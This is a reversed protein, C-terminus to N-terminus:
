RDTVLCPSEKEHHICLSDGFKAPSFTRSIKKLTSGRDSVMDELAEVPTDCSKPIVEWERQAAGM